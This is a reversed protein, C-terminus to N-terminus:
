GKADLLIEVAKMVDSVRLAQMCKNDDCAKLCPISCQSWNHLVKYIGKGYPGTVAPSTPGFLAVTPANQSVAIHMPGSDNSIVAKARKMVCALQKLTTKGCMNITYEGSLTKIQAGLAIDKKAGTVLIKIKYASYLYRCLGAFNLAPWRKQVWNGGPNIVFFKEKEFIGMDKLIIDTEAAIGDPLRFVYDNDYADIGATKLINLFYEVRHVSLGKDKVADTLMWSRKKTHYGIRRKIGAIYAILMKSMSRHFSIATDFRMKKLELIFSIKKVLSKHTTREDFLILRDIHPNDELMERCRPHAMVGIFADNNSHRLASISPTTFLIDGLWNPEIILIRKM